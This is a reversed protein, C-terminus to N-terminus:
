KYDVWPELEDEPNDEPIDDFRLNSDADHSSEEYENPDQKNHDTTDDGRESCPRPPEADVTVDVSTSAAQAAACSTSSM